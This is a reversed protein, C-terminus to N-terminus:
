AFRGGARAWDAMHATSCFTDPIRHGGRHRVLQVYDDGLATACLACEDAARPLDGPTGEEWRAGRIAWPVVHELRCFVASRGGPEDAARLGDGPAVASGCWACRGPTSTSHAAAM